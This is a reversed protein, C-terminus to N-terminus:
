CNKLLMRMQNTVIHHSTELIKVIKIGLIRRFATLSISKLLALFLQCKAVNSKPQFYEKNTKYSHYHINWSPIKGELLGLGSEDVQICKPDRQRVSTLRPLSSSGM